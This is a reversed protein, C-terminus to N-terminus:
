ATKNQMTASGMARLRHWRQSEVAAHASLATIIRKALAQTSGQFEPNTPLPAEWHSFLISLHEGRKQLYTVVIKFKDPFIVWCPSLTKDSHQLDWPSVRGVSQHWCPALGLDLVLLLGRMLTCRLLDRYFGCIGAPIWMRVGLGVTFRM